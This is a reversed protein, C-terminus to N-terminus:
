LGGNTSDLHEHDGALRGLNYACCFCLAWPGYFCWTGTGCHDCPTFAGIHRHGLGDIEDPWLSQRRATGGEKGSELTGM